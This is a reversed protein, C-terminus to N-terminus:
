KAPAYLGGDFPEIVFEGPASEFTADSSPVPAATPAPAVPAAPAVVEDEAPVDTAGPAPAGAGEPLVFEFNGMGMDHNYLEDYFNERVRIGGGIASMVTLIFLMTLFILLIDNM